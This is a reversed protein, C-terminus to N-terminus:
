LLLPRQEGVGRDRERDPRRCAGGMGRLTQFVGSDAVEAVALGFLNRPMPSTALSDPNFVTKGHLAQLPTARRQDPFRLEMAKMHKM